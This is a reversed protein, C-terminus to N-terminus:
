SVLLACIILNSPCLHFAHSAMTRLKSDVLKNITYTPLRCACCQM